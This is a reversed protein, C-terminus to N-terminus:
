ADKPHTGAAEDRELNYIGTTFEDHLALEEFREAIAKVRAIEPDMVALDFDMIISSVAHGPVKHHVGRHLLETMLKKAEVSGMVDDRIARALFGKVLDWFIPYSTYLNLWARICLLFYLRTGPDHRSQLSLMADGVQILAPNIFISWASSPCQTQFMYLLRRLQKLSAAFAAVPCTDSSSFSRMKHFSVGSSMQLFPHFIQIVICHFMM